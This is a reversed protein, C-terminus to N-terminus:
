SVDGLGGEIGGREVGSGSGKNRLSGIDLRKKMRNRRNNHM